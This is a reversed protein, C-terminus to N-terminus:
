TRPGQCRDRDLDSVFKGHEHGELELQLKAHHCLGLRGESDQERQRVECRSRYFLNNFGGILLSEINGTGRRQACKLGEGHEAAGQGGPQHSHM